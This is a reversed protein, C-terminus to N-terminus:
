PAGPNTVAQILEEFSTMWSIRNLFEALSPSNKRLLRVAEGVPDERKGAAGGPEDAYAGHFAFYAQNLKRIGYGNDWFLKRREEMYAEAEKVRGDALLQDVRLRTVNMEKRFDFTPPEPQPAPQTSPPPPAPPPPLLEPYFLELFRRGIEKGALNATTENMIRLEPSSSYNLGLPRLTLYNHIWEHAVVESLWDLSGSQYVMTPYTGIGGVNVVLSSVGLAADVRAELAVQDEISLEPLLSINEDQRIIFRPSVILALPLPTTHYLVPPLPQGGLTLGLESVVYSLQSELIDEALPALETRRANLEELEQRRPAALSQPDAISPDSFLFNLEWELRSIRGLMELYDVMMQHRQETALYNGTGLSLEFLKIQLADLTWGVYDFEIQRTFSRVLETQDGPSLSSAGLFVVGLILAQLWIIVHNLVRLWKVAPSKVM